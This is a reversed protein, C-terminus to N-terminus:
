RELNNKLLSFSRSYSLVLHLSFEHSLHTM